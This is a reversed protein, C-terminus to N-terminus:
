SLCSVIDWLLIEHNSSHAFTFLNLANDLLMARVHVFKSNKMACSTSATCRQECFRESAGVSSRFVNLKIVDHSMIILSARYFYTPEDGSLEMRERAGGPPNRLLEGDCIRGEIERMVERGIGPLLSTLIGSFIDEGGDGASCGEWGQSPTLDFDRLVIGERRL